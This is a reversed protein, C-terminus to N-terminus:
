KGRGYERKHSHNQVGYRELYPKIASAARTIKAKAEKLDKPHMKRKSSTPIDDMVDQLERAIRKMHDTNFNLERTYEALEKTIGADELAEIIADRANVHVREPQEFFLDVFSSLADQGHESVYRQHSKIIVANIRSIDNIRTLTGLCWIASLVFPLFPIVRNPEFTLALQVEAPSPLQPSLTTTAYSLGDIILKMTNHLPAPLILKSTDQIKNQLHEIWGPIAVLPNKNHRDEALTIKDSFAHLLFSTTSLNNANIISTPDPLLHEIDAKNIVSQNLFKQWDQTTSQTSLPLIGRSILLSLRNYEIISMAKLAQPLITTASIGSVGSLLLDKWPRGSRVTEPQSM